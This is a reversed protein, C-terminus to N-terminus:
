SESSLDKIAEKISNILNKNNEANPKALFDALYRIAEVGEDSSTFKSFDFSQLMNKLKNQQSKQKLLSGVQIQKDIIPTEFGPARGIIGVSPTGAATKTLYITGEKVQNQLSLLVQKLLQAQDLKILSNKIEENQSVSDQVESSELYKALSSNILQLETLSNIKNNYKELLKIADETEHLSSLNSSIADSYNEIIPRAEVSNSGLKDIMKSIMSLNELLLNTDATNTLAHYKQKELIELKNSDKEKIIMSDITDLINITIGDREHMLYFILENNEPQQDDLLFELELEPYCTNFKELAKAIPKSQMYKVIEALRKTSSTGQGFVQGVNPNRFSVTDNHFSSNPYFHEFSTFKNKLNVLEESLFKKAETLREDEYFNVRNINQTPEVESGNTEIDNKLGNAINEARTNVANNNRTITDIAHVPKWSITHPIDLTEGNSSRHTVIDSFVPSQSAGNNLNIAFTELSNSKSLDTDEAYIKYNEIIEALNSLNFIEPDRLKEELSTQSLKSTINPTNSNEETNAVLTKRIAFELAKKNAPNGSLSSIYSISNVIAPLQKIVPNNNIVEKIHPHTESNLFGRKLETILASALAKDSVEGHEALDEPTVYEMQEDPFTFKVVNNNSPDNLYSNIIDRSLENLVPDQILSQYLSNRNDEIEDCLINLDNINVAIKTKSDNIHKNRILQAEQMIREADSRIKTENNGTKNASSGFGKNKKNSNKKQKPRASIAFDNNSNTDPLNNIYKKAAQRIRKEYDKDDPSLTDLAGSGSSNNNTETELTLGQAALAKLISTQKGNNQPTTLIKKQNLGIQNLNNHDESDLSLLKKKNPLESVKSKIVPYTNM